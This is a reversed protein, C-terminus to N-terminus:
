AAAKRKKAAAGKKVKRVADKFAKVRAAHLTGKGPIAKKRKWTHVTSIPLGMANAIATCGLTKITEEVDM